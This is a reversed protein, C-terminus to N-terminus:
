IGTFRPSPSVFPAFPERQRIAPYDIARRSAQGTDIMTIVINSRWSIIVTISHSIRESMMMTELERWSVCHTEGFLLGLM